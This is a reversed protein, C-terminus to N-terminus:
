SQRVLKLKDTLVTAVMGLNTVRQIQVIHLKQIWLFSSSSQQSLIQIDVRGARESNLVM